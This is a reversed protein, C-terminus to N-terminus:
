TQEPSPSAIPAGSPDGGESATAGCGDGTRETRSPEPGALSSAPRPLLRSPRPHERTHVCHPPPCACRGGAAPVPGAEAARVRPRPSGPLWGRFTLVLQAVPPLSVSGRQRGPSGRAGPRRGRKGAIEQYPIDALSFGKAGYAQRVESCSRAKVDAAAPLSLLLGSLPLIVARIWSPM